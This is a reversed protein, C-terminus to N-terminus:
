LTPRIDIRRHDDRRGDGDREHAYSVAGTRVHQPQMMGDRRRDEKFKRRYYGQWIVSAPIGILSPLIWTMVSAMGDFRLGFLRSAGLVLFATHFAIGGGIMAGMHEYWWAMPTAYPKRAFGLQGLGILFGIPSMFFLVPQRAAIGVGLMACSGVIASLSVFTHFPTRLREPTRRTALVRVGHYVPTFTIAVLYFLFLSMVRLDAAIAAAREPSVATRLPKVSLPAIFISSAMVLGSAAVVCTAWFFVRGFQVHAKGGKRLLAPLWFAALGILGAVIHFLLTTRYITSIM